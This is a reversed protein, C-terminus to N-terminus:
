PVQLARFSSNSTPHTLHLTRLAVTDLAYTPPSIGFPSIESQFDGRNTEQSVRKSSALRGTPLVVPQLTRLRVSM